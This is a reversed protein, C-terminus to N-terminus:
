IVFGWSGGRRENTDNHAIDQTGRKSENVRLVNMKANSMIYSITEQDWGGYM